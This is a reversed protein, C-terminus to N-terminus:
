KSHSACVILKGDKTRRVGLHFREDPEEFM